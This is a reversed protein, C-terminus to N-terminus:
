VVIILQELGEGGSAITLKLTQGILENSTKLGGVHIRASATASDFEPASFNLQNPGEVFIDEVNKSLTLVMTQDNLAATTVVPMNAEHPVKGRWQALMADDPTSASVPKFTLEQTIPVPICITDCVGIFASAEVIVPLAVDVPEVTFLFVTENKYGITEGDVGHFRKPLPLQVTFSKLNKGVLNISPPIGGAGPVRWYTKWNPQLLVQLGGVYSAGSFGGAVFKAQWPLAQATAQRPVAALAAGIMFFRRNLSKSSM